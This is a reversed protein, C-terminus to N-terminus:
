QEEFFEVPNIPEGDKLLEFYLNSGEVSYYKTPESIFGLVHGSEVYDGEKFNLEKLQGYVATYGDGLDVTMTTGTEAKNEISSVKGKAVSYVKSNVEGAIIIAPNYKYQDLTPFYTTSDMSFNLIVNGQMPWIMGNEPSFHLTTTKATEKKVNDSATQVAEQTEPQTLDEEDPQEGADGLLDELEVGNQMQTDPAERIESTRPPIVASVIASEESDEEEAVQEEQIQIEEAIEAEMQERKSEERTGYFITTGIAAIIVLTGAIVYQKQKWIASWGTKRM